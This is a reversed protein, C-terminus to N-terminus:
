TQLDISKVSPVSHKSLIRANAVKAQESEIVIVMHDDLNFKIFPQKNSEVLEVLHRLNKVTTDNVKLVQLNTLSTFGFNIEDVLVYSLIIAEQDKSQMEEYIAKHVLKRPAVNYWDDGWEHLYPQVLKTFVLGAYVFFSPRTDYAHVPILSARPGIEADVEIQKGQRLLKIKSKEGVFKNLLLYDFTIREGQHRFPITGDNSVAVGDISLIVDDKQLIGLTSSTPMVYNVLM